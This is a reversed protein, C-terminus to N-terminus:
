IGSALCERSSASYKVGSVSVRSSLNEKGSVSVRTRCSRSGRGLSGLGLTRSRDRRVRLGFGSGGSGLDESGLHTFRKGLGIKYISYIFIKNCIFQADKCVYQPKPAKHRNVEYNFIPGM